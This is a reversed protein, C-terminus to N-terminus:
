RMLGFFYPTYILKLLNCIQNLFLHKDHFKQKVKM